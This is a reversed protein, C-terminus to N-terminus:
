SEHTQKSGASHPSSRSSSKPWTSTQCRSPARHSLDAAETAQLQSNLNVQTSQQPLCQVALKELGEPNTFNAIALQALPRNVGNSFSGVLMGEQSMSISQLIGAGYGNQDAVALTSLEGFQTVNGIGSNINITMADFGPIAGAALDIGGDAPTALQGNANFTLVNDTLAVATGSGDAATVTWENAATKEFNLSLMETDGLSNFVQVGSVFSDGIQADAPLNGALDITSTAVPPATTGIPVSIQGVVNNSDVVGFADATWGQVFDGGATVLRGQADLSM